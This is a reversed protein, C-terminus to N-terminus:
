PVLALRCGLTTTAGGGVNIAYACVVHLGPPASVVASFGHAAGASPYAAAVDPRPQGADLATGSSDVYVHVQIPAPTDPDIAWGAVSVGGPVGGVVDLSGFPSTDPVLVLRCGIVSTAGAGVNIGYACVVHLGPPAALTASFGHAAGYGPFAAAIDPRDGAATLATGQGDVYVHVDTPAPTDPDLAWGGVQVSGAQGYAVDLSGIPSGGPVVVLRCGLLANGGLGVNIGYACVQHAGGSAPVATGFGHASGYGPFVAGVDPRAGSATTVAIQGDVYVHVDIPLATDPDIAWGGVQVSGFGGAAVDISGFPSGSPVTVSRCGLLANGGSGVNIGYACVQHTGGAAAIIASFGHAPGSGPYLSALEPRNGSASLATIQGDVYVHVAIPSATDPDIAWGSVAVAGPAPAATELSGFPSSGPVVVTRCSILANSGAGTNIGYVCVRHSGESAPATVSFGHATGLGPFSGGLDPRGGAASGVTPVGDVYVHVGISSPSSPDLAWGSVTVSGAAVGVTDISGVPDVTLRGGWAAVGDIRQYRQGQSTCQGGGDCNTDVPYSTYPANWYHYIIRLRGSQDVFFSGGGPSLQTASNGILPSDSTRGCPGLPGSCAAQGMRYDASEWENGSYILWYTGGYRVMSPNEITNGDWPLETWLLIVPSSGSAFSRGDPALRQAKLTTPYFGPVGTAKWLLYPTGDADIFPEPDISGAPDIDCVLPSTRDDVFPGQPLASTAVSICRRGPSVEWSTYAVWQGGIRAVGPAWQAKDTRASGGLSWSPPVPFADNLYPDSNYPNPSYSSRATWTSLDTSWMAPLYSGGTSTSYAWYRAGVPDWVVTPDPFNQTYPYSPRFWPAGVYAPSSIGGSNSSSDEPV